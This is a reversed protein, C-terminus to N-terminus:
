LCSSNLMLWLCGWCWLLTGYSIFATRLVQPLCFCGEVSRMSNRQFKIDLNSIKGIQRDIIYSRIPLLPFGFVLWKTTIYGQDTQRRGYFRTGVYNFNFVDKQLFAIVWAALLCILIVFLDMEPSILYLNPSARLCSTQAIVRFSNFMGMLGAIALLASVILGM